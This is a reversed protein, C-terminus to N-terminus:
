KVKLTSPFQAWDVYCFKDTTTCSDSYQDLLAVVCYEGFAPGTGSGSSVINSVSYFNYLQNSSKAGTGTFNPSLTLMRQGNLAGNGSFSSSVAWLSVRLSGTYSEASLSPNNYRVGWTVSGTMPGNSGSSSVNYSLTQGPMFSLGNSGSGRGEACSLGAPPPTTPPPPTTTATASICEMLDFRGSDDSAVTGGVAFNVPGNPGDAHIVVGMRDANSNDQFILASMSTITGSVGLSDILSKSYVLESVTAGTTPIVQTGYQTMLSFQNQAADFGATCSGGTQITPPATAAVVTVRASTDGSFKAYTSAVDTPKTICKISFDKDSVPVCGGGVVVPAPVGPVTVEKLAAMASLSASKSAAGAAGTCSLVYTATGVQTPSVTETGSTGKPGTWNGSATCSTANQTTWQLTVADGVRATPASLTLDVETTATPPPTGGDDGGGGGGCATLAFISCILASTSLLGRSRNRQTNM